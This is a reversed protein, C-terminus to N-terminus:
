DWWWRDSPLNVATKERLKLVEGKEDSLLNESDLARSANIEVGGGIPTMLTSGKWIAGVMSEVQQPANFTEVAFSKENGLFEMSWGTKGYFDEHQICAAAVALDICNRLEAYVPSREALESYKKTFSTVFMESARNGRSDATRRQGGSTIAEDAGVLKVGDGVIEMGLGDDTARVSQYDPVFFWRFLANRAVQSPNAREIFSILRVPPTELGIGILKMRYDAEVLVQAFHTSASVGQVSVKQMGLSNRLGTVIFETQDPTITAGVKGLFNQVSALGEETPDISCGILSTPQGDPPFARLAVVLDQLQLVPRNNGLGVVRGTPDTLWGEAPGALVIDKSDPYCFIYRVRQLGALYRMEDSPVGHNAELARELRNLSVMRLKSFAAVDPSLAAKAAALRAARVQGGPDAFVQKRLVGQADVVVGAMNGSGSNSSSSNNNNSGGNNNNVQAFAQDTLDVCPTGLLAFGGVAIAAIWRRGLTQWRM